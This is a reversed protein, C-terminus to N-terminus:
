YRIALRDPKWASLFEGKTIAKGDVQAVVVNADREENIQILSCGGAIMVASMLLAIVALKRKM